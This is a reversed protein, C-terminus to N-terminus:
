HILSGFISSMGPINIVHYFVGGLIIALFVFILCFPNFIVSAMLLLLDIFVTRATKLLGIVKDGQPDGNRGTILPRAVNDYVMEVNWKAVLAVFSVGEASTLGLAGDLIANLIAKNMRKKVQQAVRERAQQIQNQIQRRAFSTAQERASAAQQQALQLAQDEPEGIEEGPIEEPAEEGEAIRPAAGAEPATEEPAAGILQEQVARQRQELQRMYELEMASTKMLGGGAIPEEVEEAQGSTYTATPAGPTLVSPRSEEVGMRLNSGRTVTDGMISQIEQDRRGQQQDANLSIAAAGIALPGAVRQAMRGFASPTGSRPRAASPGGGTTAM